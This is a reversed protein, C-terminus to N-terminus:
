SGPATATATELPLRSWRLAPHWAQPSHPFVNRHRSERRRWWFSWRPVASGQGDHVLSKTWRPSRLRWMRRLCGCRRAATSGGLDQHHLLKGFTWGAHGPRRQPSLSDESQRLFPTTRERSRLHELRSLGVFISSVQTCALLCVWISFCVSCYLFSRERIICCLVPLQWGGLGMGYNERPKRRSPRAGDDQGVSRVAAFGFRTTIYIFHYM